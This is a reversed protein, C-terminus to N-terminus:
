ASHLPSSHRNLDARARFIAIFVLLSSPIALLVASSTLATVLQLEDTIGALTILGSIIGAPLYLIKSFVKLNVLRSAKFRIVMDSQYWGCSPCPFPPEDRLLAHEIDEEAAKQAGTQAQTPNLTLPSFSDGTATIRYTHTFTSGCRECEVQREAISDITVTYRTGIPIPVLM